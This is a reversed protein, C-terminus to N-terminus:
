QSHGIALAPDPVHHRVPNRSSSKLVRQRPKSRISASIVKSLILSLNPNLKLCIPLPQLSVTHGNSKPNLLIGAYNPKVIKLLFLTLENSLVKTFGVRLKNQCSVECVTLM